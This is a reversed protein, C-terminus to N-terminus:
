LAFPAAVAAAASSVNAGGLQGPYSVGSSSGWVTEVRVAPVAELGLRNLTQTKTVHPSTQPEFVVEPGVGLDQLTVTGFGGTGLMGLERLEHRSLFDSTAVIRSAEVLSAKAPPLASGGQARETSNDRDREKERERM